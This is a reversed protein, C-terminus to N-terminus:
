SGQGATSLAYKSLLRRANTFYKRRQPPFIRSITDDSLAKELEEYGLLSVMQYWSLSGLARVLLRTDQFAQKPNDLINQVRQARKEIPIDWLMTQITTKLDKNMTTERQICKSRKGHFTWLSMAIRAVFRWVPPTKLSGCALSFIKKLLVKM